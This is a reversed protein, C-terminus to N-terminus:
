GNRTSPPTEKPSPNFGGEEAIFTKKYEIKICLKYYKEVSRGHRTISTRYRGIAGKRERM